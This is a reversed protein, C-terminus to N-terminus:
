CCYVREEPHVCENSILRPEEKIMGNGEEYLYGGDELEELKQFCEEVLKEDIPEEGTAATAVKNHKTM